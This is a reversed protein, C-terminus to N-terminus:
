ASSIQYNTRLANIASKEWPHPHVNSAARTAKSNFFDFLGTRGICWSDRRAAGRVYKRAERSPVHTAAHCKAPKILGKLITGPSTWREGEKTREKEAGTSKTSDGNSSLTRQRKPGQHIGM